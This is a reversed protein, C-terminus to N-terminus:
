RDGNGHKVTLGLFLGIKAPVSVVLFPIAFYRFDSARNQNPTVLPVRGSGSIVVQVVYVGGDRIGWCLWFIALEVEDGSIGSRKIIHNTGRYTTRLRQIGVSM